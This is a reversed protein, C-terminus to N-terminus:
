GDKGSNGADVQGADSSDRAEANAPRSKKMEDVVVKYITSKMAGACMLRFKDAENTEFKASNIKESDALFSNRRVEDAGLKAIALSMKEANALFSYWKAEDAGLKAIALNMKEANALSRKVVEDTSLKALAASLAGASALSRKGIEDAGLKAIALNMKEANALSCKMAEDTSSKASAASLAGASALSRKGIEDAGLKAIASNMAAINASEFMSLNQRLMESSSRMLGEATVRQNPFQPEKGEGGGISALGRWFERMLSM